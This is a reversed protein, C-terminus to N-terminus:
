ANERRRRAFVLAGAGLVLAAGGAVGYLATDSDSGGTAALEPGNVDSNGGSAAAGSSGTNAPQETAPPTTEPKPAGTAPAGTFAGCDNLKTGAPATVPKVEVSTQALHTGGATMYGVNLSSYATNIAPYGVGLAVRYTLIRDTPTGAAYTKFDVMMNDASTVPVWAKTKPNQIELAAQCNDPQVWTAGTKVATFGSLFWPFPVNVPVDSVVHVEFAAYGSGIVPAAPFGEVRVRVVDPLVTSIAQALPQSGHEGGVPFVAAGIGAQMINVAGDQPVTLGLRLKIQRTEGPALTIADGVWVGVDGTGTRDVVASQPKWSKSAEDYLDIKAGAVDDVFDAWGISLFLKADFATAGPNQATVTFEDPAANYKITSALGDIAVTASPTDAGAPNAPLLVLPM